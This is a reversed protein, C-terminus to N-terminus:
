VVGQLRFVHERELDQQETKSKRCSTTRSQGLESCRHWKYDTSCCKVGSSLRANIGEDIASATQSAGGLSLHM